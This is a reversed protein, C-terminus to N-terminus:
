RLMLELPIASTIGSQKVIKYLQPIDKEMFLFVNLFGHSTRHVELLNAFHKSGEYHGRWYPVYKSELKAIEAYIRVDESDLDGLISDAQKRSIVKQSALAGKEPVFVVFGRMGSEQAFLLEYESSRLVYQMVSDHMM